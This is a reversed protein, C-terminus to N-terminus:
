KFDHNGGPPEPPAVRRRPTLWGAQYLYIIFGLLSVLLFRSTTSYFYVIAMLMTARMLMYVWDLWDRNRVGEEEEEDEMMAGGPGANMRVNRQPRAQDQPQPQQMPAQMAQPQQMPAQSVPQHQLQEAAPSVPPSNPSSPVFLPSQPTGPPTPYPSPMGQFQSRHSKLFSSYIM